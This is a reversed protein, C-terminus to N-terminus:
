SLSLMDLISRMMEGKSRVSERGPDRTKNLLMITKRTIQVILQPTMETREVTKLGETQSM